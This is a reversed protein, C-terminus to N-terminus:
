KKLIDIPFKDGWRNNIIDRNVYWTPKLKGVSNHALRINTTVGIKCKGDFHNQLCLAIDYFDFGDLTRDFNSSVRKKHTAIFLGDIVVVEQLDKDLLPSFATLWSKGESRHLVQGFKKEYNWWAGNEDFQASGAVGIIGYDQHENFLRLIEKGWGKRLFEIDDHIFIVVNEKIDNSELMDAYIKSLSIGDPNHIYYVHTNAESTEKLHEIFPKIEEGTKKSCFIVAIETEM